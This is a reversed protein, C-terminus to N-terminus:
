KIVEMKCEGNEYWALVKGGNHWAPLVIREAEAGNLKFEHVAPKHTHGHILTQVGHKQMVNEVADQTVDMIEMNTIKTYSKSKERLNEAFRLRYSLPLWSFLKKIIPNTYRKRAKLYQLDLTCLTDGHMLLVPTGYLIIKKEDPLLECGAQRLFRKGILFDRNGRMLYIKIGRASTAHLADIISRNFATDHDDGIWAEFLDGLIYLADVHEDCSQLVSLFDATIAPTQEELHIDSIFLTKQM